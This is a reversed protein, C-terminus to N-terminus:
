NIITRCAMTGSNSKRFLRSLLPHEFEDADDYGFLHEEAVYTTHTEGDVLVHYWPRNKEPETNTMRDYWESSQSFTADVDYILGRYGYRRHIVIQGLAFHATQSRIM